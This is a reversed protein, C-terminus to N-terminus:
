PTGASEDFSTVVYINRFLKARKEYKVTLNYGTRGDKQLVITDQPKLDWVSNTRYAQALSSMVKSKPSKMLDANAQADEAIGKVTMFEVYSPVVKFAFMGVFLLMTILAFIGIFGLGTQKNPLGHKQSALRAVDTQTNASDSM